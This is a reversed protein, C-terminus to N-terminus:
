ACVKAVETVWGQRVRLRITGDKLTRKELAEIQQGPVLKTGAKASSLEPGRRIVGLGLATYAQRAASPTPASRPRSTHQKAGPGRTEVTSATTPRARGSDKMQDLRLLSLHDKKADTAKEIMIDTHAIEAEIQALEQRMKANELTIAAREASDDANEQATFGLDLLKEQSTDPDKPTALVKGGQKRNKKPRESIWGGSFRLRDTGDQLRKKELVLIEQGAPLAGIKASAIAAESRVVAASLVTYPVGTAVRELEADVENIEVQTADIAGQATEVNGPRPRGLARDPEVSQRGM